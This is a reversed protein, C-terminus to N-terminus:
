INCLETNYRGPWQTSKQIIVRDMVVTGSSCRNYDPVWKYVRHNVQESVVYIVAAM